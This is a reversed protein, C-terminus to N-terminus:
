DFWGFRDPHFIAVFGALCVGGLASLMLFEVYFVLDHPQDAGMGRWGVFIGAPICCALWISLLEKMPWRTTPIM